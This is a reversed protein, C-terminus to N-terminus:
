NREKYFKLALMVYEEVEKPSLTVDVLSNIKKYPLKISSVKSIKNELMDGSIIQLVTNNNLKKSQSLKKLLEAKKM